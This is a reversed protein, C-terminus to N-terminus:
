HTPLKKSPINVYSKRQVHVIEQFMDEYPPVLCVRATKMIHALKEILRGADHATQM